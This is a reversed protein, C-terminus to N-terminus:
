SNEMAKQYSDFSLITGKNQGKIYRMFFWEDM